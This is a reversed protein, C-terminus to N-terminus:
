RLLNNKIKDKFYKPNTFISNVIMICGKILNGKKINYYGNRFLEAALAEKKLRTLENISLNNQFDIFSLEPEGRRRKKLNTKIHRMRLLMGLSNSSMASPHKRYRCLIEPVVIIAKGESYLDSMRCWLDLDECLDRYRPKGEPFGEINHGGVRLAIERNIIATPQMFILKAGKAKKYFEEKSKAGLFIGGPINKGNSDMYSLHCGVAMLDQDSSIKNYLSEVLLPLPCDDADIFLIYKSKIHDEAYKRGFALGHNEEFNVLDYQRPNKKFFDEILNMSNDTSCDNIILLKFEQSSQNILCTLTEEIYKEANYVCICVTLDM